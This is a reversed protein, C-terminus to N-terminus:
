RRTFDSEAYGLGPLLPRSPNAAPQHHQRRVMEWTLWLADDEKYGWSEGDDEFLLGQSSGV